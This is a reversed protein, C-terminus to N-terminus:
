LTYTSYKKVEKALERAKGGTIEDLKKWFRGSHDKVETHVLEHLLIYDILEDPLKMMQLNLSINNHSSCSGWNRKNNRISVKNYSFGNLVALEKLRPPLLKRAEYRYVQSLIDELFLRAKEANFDPSYVKVVKGTTEVDETKGSCLEVQHLKTQITEGVTYIKRQAVAKNQQQRIWAENRALFSLVEKESIFFPFSILVSKDPKVSIKMNKSRRNRFFTVPGISKFHVVKNPM